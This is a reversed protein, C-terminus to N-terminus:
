LEFQTIDLYKELTNPNVKLEKRILYKTIEGGGTSFFDKIFQHIEKAKQSRERSIIEDFQALYELTASAIESPDDNKYELSKFGEPIPEPEQDLPWAPIEYDINVCRYSTQTELDDENHGLIGSVYNADTGHKRPNYHHDLCAKAYIARADKFTRPSYGDREFKYKSFFQYQDDRLEYKAQRNLDPSVSHNIRDHKSWGKEPIAEKNQLNKCFDTERLREFQAVVDKAKVGPYVPIERYEQDQVAERKKAQGRFLLTKSNKVEFEATSLLEIPRRGTALGLALTLKYFQDGEFGEKIINRIRENSIIFANKTHKIKLQKTWKERLTNRQGGTMHLMYYAQHEIKIKKLATLPTSLNNARLQKELLEYAARINDIDQANHLNDFLVGLTQDNGQDDKYVKDAYQKYFKNHFRAISAFAKPHIYGLSKIANRYDTMYSRATNYSLKAETEDKDVGWYRVENRCIARFKATKAKDDMATDQQIAEIKDLFEPIRKLGSTITQRKETEQKKM